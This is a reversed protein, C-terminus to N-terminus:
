ALMQIFEWLLPKANVQLAITMAGISGQPKVLLFLGGGDTMKYSSERPKTQKVATATLKQM